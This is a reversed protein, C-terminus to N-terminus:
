GKNKIVSKEVPEVHVYCDMIWVKAATALGASFAVCRQQAPIYEIYAYGQSDFPNGSDGVTFTATETWSKEQDFAEFTVTLEIEEPTDM